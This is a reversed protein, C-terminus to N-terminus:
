IPEQPLTISFNLKVLQSLVEEKLPGEIGMVLDRINLSESAAVNHRGLEKLARVAAVLARIMHLIDKNPHCLGIAERAYTHAKDFQQDDCCLESLNILSLLAFRRDATPELSLMVAAQLMDMAEKARGLRRSVLGLQTLTRLQGTFNREDTFTESARNLNYVADDFRELGSYIVGLQYHAAARLDQDIEESQLDLADVCCKMAASHNGRIEHYEALFTLSEFQGRYNETSRYIDLARDFYEFGVDSNDLAKHALALGIRVEAESDRDGSQLVARLAAAHVNLWDSPPSERAIYRRLYRLIKWGHSLGREAALEVLSAINYREVNVWEMADSSTVFEPAISGTSDIDIDERRKPSLARDVSLTMDLYWDFVRLLITTRVNDSDFINSCGAAFARVLPHFKFRTGSLEVLNLSTLAALNQRIEDRGVEGLTAAFDLGFDPCPHLGLFRFVKAAGDSLSLYSYMFSGHITQLDDEGVSLLDSTAVSDDLPALEALTRIAQPVGGSIPSLAEILGEEVNADYNGLLRSLLSESESPSLPPIVLRYAGSRTVLDTLRHRSTVILVCQAGAPLLPRVQSSDRADDLVILIRKDDLVSRLLASRASITAPIADSPTGLAELFDVIVVGSDAPGIHSYGRLNAYLQGDPFQERISYAWQLALETKGVGVLGTLVLVLPSTPGSMRSRTLVAELKALEERRGVFESALAPLQAPRVRASSAPPRRGSVLGGRHQLLENHYEHLERPPGTGFSEVNRRYIQRWYADYESYHGCGDLATLRQAIYKSDLEHEEIVEDLIQLVTLHNGREIEVDCLAQYGATRDYNELEERRQEMWMTSLDAIPPGNWLSVGKYLYDAADDLRRERHASRGANLLNKFQVFDVIDSEPYFGYADRQTVIRASAGGDRLYGRLRSVYIQLDKRARDPPQDDWLAQIIKQVGVLRGSSLALVGLLSREKARGLKVSGVGRRLEVPGLIRFEV